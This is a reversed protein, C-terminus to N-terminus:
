QPRGLAVRAARHELDDNLAELSQVEYKRKLATLLLHDALAPNKPLIPGHLYTGYVNKYVAGEYGSEANNGFGKSVLGLPPQNHDLFTEGSHNEFGVLQGFDSKVVVNGVMRKNSGITQARFLSIGPIKVGDMTEFWRGFLQYTGCVTLMVVGAEAAKHLNEAKKQLDQGVAIQGRDQGGGAFIIDAQSLDYDGGIGINVVEAEYGRWELRRRLTLVNGRDGYINLEVPYLHVITLHQKNKLSGTETKM